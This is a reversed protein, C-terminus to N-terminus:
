GKSIFIFKKTKGNRLSIFIKYFAAGRYYGAVDDNVDEVNWSHPLNVFEANSELLSLDNGKVFQWHSNISRLNRPQSQVAFVILFLIVVQSFMKKLIM